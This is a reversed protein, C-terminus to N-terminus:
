TEHLAWRIVLLGENSLLWLSRVLHRCHESNLRSTVHTAVCELQSPSSLSPPDYQVPVPVCRPKSRAEVCTYVCVCWVTSGWSRLRRRVDITEITSREHFLAVQIYLEWKYAFIIPSLVASAAFIRASQASYFERTKRLTGRGEGPTAM